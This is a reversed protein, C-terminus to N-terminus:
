DIEIEQFWSHGLAQQASIRRTPDLQMMGIVVEQFLSDGVEAWSPFPEYSHYDAVRDDWLMGLVQCSLTNDGVHTILGNFSERDPFYFIQRQLRIMEPLAGAAKHKQFDADPGFIVRGLM